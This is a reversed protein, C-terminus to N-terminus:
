REGGEGDGAAGVAESGGGLLVDDVFPRPEPVEQRRLDMPHDVALDDLSIGDPPPIRDFETLVSGAGEAAAAAAASPRRDAPTTRLAAAGLGAVGGGLSQIPDRVSRELGTLEAGLQRKIGAVEDRLNLVERVSDRLEEAQLAERLESQVGSSLNRLQAIWKGLQRAAGPIRDPGLVLLAVILVVVVEGGGLSFV